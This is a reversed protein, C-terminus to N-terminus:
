MAGVMVSPLRAPADGMSLQKICLSIGFVHLVVGVASYALRINVFLCIYVHDNSRLLM